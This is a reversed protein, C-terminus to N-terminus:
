LPRFPEAAITGLDIEAFEIFAIEDNVEFVADSPKQLQPANGRLSASHLLHEHQLECITRFEIDRELLRIKNRAIDPHPLFRRWETRERIRFPRPRLFIRSGGDEVVGSFHQGHLGLAFSLKAMGETEVGLPLALEFM